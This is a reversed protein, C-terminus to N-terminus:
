ARVGELPPMTRVLAEPALTRWREALHPHCTFAIIQRMRAVGALLRMAAEARGPDLNVLMDDLLLPLPHHPAVELALALRLCVYLLEATGRSLRGAPILAGRGTAVVLGSDEQRVAPGFAGETATELWGGARALVKAQSAGTFRRAGEEIMARALVARRWYDVAEQRASLLVSRRLALDAASPLELLARRKEGCAAAERLARSREVDLDDLLDALRALEAARWAAAERAVQLVGQGRRWRRIGTGVAVALGLVAATPALLAHVSLLPWVAVLLMVAVLGGAGEVPTWGIAPLTEAMTELRARERAADTWQAGIAAAREEQARAQRDFEELTQLQREAEAEAKLLGALAEDASRVACAGRPRHCAQALDTLARMASAPVTGGMSAAGLIRDRLAPDALADLAKLDDLGFAHVARFVARDVPGLLDALGVSAGVAHRPRSLRPMRPTEATRVIQVPGKADELWLVGVPRGDDGADARTTGRASVPGFLMFELFAMTTTKGSGNPGVLINLGPQLDSCAVDRLGGYVEARWGTIRM